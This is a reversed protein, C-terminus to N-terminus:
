CLFFLSAEFLLRRPGSFELNSWVACFTRRSQVTGAIVAARDNDTRTSNKEIARSRALFFVICRVICMILSGRFTWPATNGRTKMEPRGRSKIKDALRPFNRATIVPSIEVLPRRGSSEIRISESRRREAMRSGQAEDSGQEVYNGRRVTGKRVTREGAVRSPRAALVVSDRAIKLNLEPVAVGEEGNRAIEEPVGRGRILAIFIARVCWASTQIDVVQRARAVSRLKM